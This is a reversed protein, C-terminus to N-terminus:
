KIEFEMEDNLKVFGYKEYLPRGMETTELTVIRIGRSKVEDIILDLLKTAIGKKRYDPHTYLNM